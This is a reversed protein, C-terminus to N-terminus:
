VILKHSTTPPLFSLKRGGVVEWMSGLCSHNLACRLIEQNKGSLLSFICLTTQMFSFESHAISQKIAEGGKMSRMGCIVVAKIM